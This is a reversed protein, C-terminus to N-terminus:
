KFYILTEEKEELWFAVNFPAMDKNQKTILANLCKSQAIM